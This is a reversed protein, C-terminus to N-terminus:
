RPKLAVEVVGSEPTRVCGDMRYRSGELSMGWCTGAMNPATITVLATNSGSPVSYVYNDDAGFRASTIVSAGAEIAGGDETTFRITTPVWTFDFPLAVEM